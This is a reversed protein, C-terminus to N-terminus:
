EPRSPADEDSEAHTPPQVPGGNKDGQGRKAGEAMLKLIIKEGLKRFYDAPNLMM